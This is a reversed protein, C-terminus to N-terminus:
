RAYPKKPMVTTAAMAATASAGNSKSKSKGFDEGFLKQWM